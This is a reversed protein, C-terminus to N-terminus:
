LPTWRGDDTMTEVRVKDSAKIPSEFKVRKTLRRGREVGVLLGCVAGLIWSAASLFLYAFILTM